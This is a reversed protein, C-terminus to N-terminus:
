ANVGQYEFRSANALMWDAIQEPQNLDLLAMHAPPQVPLAPPPVPQAGAVGSPRTPGTPGVPGLPGTPGAAWAGASVGLMAFLVAMGLLARGPLNRGLGHLLMASKM